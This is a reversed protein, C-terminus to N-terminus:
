IKKSRFFYTPGYADSPTCNLNNYLWDAPAYQSAPPDYGLIGIQQLTEAILESCVVQEFINSHLFTQVKGGGCPTLALARSVVWRIGLICLDMRYSLYASAIKLLQNSTPRRGKNLAKWGMISSGKYRELKDRLRIIRPGSRYKQGVDAEWCYLCQGGSDGKEYDRFVMSIHTFPCDSGYQIIKTDSSWLLVDGNNAESLVKDLSTWLLNDRHTTIYQQITPASLISVVLYLVFIICGIVYLRM